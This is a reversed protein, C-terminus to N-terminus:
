FQLVLTIRKFAVRQEKNTNNLFSSNLYMMERVCLSSPAQVCVWGDWKQRVLMCEKIEALKTNLHSFQLSSLQCTSDNRCSNLFYLNDDSGTSPLITDTAIHVSKQLDYTSGATKINHCCILLNKKM